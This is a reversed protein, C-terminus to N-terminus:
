VKMSLIMTAFASSLEDETPVHDGDDNDVSQDDSQDAPKPDPNLGQPDHLVDKGCLSKDCRLVSLYLWEYTEPAIPVYDKVPAGQACNILIEQTKASPTCCVMGKRCQLYVGDEPYVNAGPAYLLDTMRSWLVCDEMEPTLSTIKPSGQCWMPFRLTDTSPHEDWYGDADDCDQNQGKPIPYTLDEDVGDELREKYAQKHNQQLYSCDRLKKPDENSDVGFLIYERICERESLGKTYCFRFDYLQFSSGSLPPIKGAQPTPISSTQQTKLTSSAKTSPASESPTVTITRTNAEPLNASSAPAPAPLPATQTSDGLPPPAVGGVVEYLKVCVGRGVEPKRYCGGATSGTLTTIRACEEVLFTFAEVCFTQNGQPPADGAKYSDTAYVLEVVKPTQGTINEYVYQVTWMWRLDGDSEQVAFGTGLNWCFKTFLYDYDVANYRM